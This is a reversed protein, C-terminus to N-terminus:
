IPAKRKGFHTSALGFFLCCIAAEICSQQVLVSPLSGGGSGRCSVGCWSPNSNKVKSCGWYHLKLTTNNNNFFDVGCRPPSSKQVKSCRPHHLLICFTYKIEYQNNNMIQRHSSDSIEAFHSHSSQLIVSM